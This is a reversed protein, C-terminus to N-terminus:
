RAATGLGGRVVRPLEIYNRVADRAGSSLDEIAAVHADVGSTSNLLRFKPGRKGNPKPENSVQWEVHREEARAARVLAYAAILVSLVGGLAGLWAPFTDGWDTILDAV